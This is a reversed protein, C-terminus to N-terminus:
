HSTQCYNMWDVGGDWVSIRYLYSPKEMVSGQRREPNQQVRAGECGLICESQGYGFHVQLLIFDYKLGLCMLPSKSGSV